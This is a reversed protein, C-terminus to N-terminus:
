RNVYALIWNAFKYDNKRQGVDNLISITNTNKLLDIKLGFIKFVYFEWEGYLIWTWLLLHLCISLVFVPSAAGRGNLHSSCVTIARSKHQTHTKKGGTSTRTHITWVHTYINICSQFSITNVFKIDFMTKTGPKSSQKKKGTTWQISTNTHICKDSHANDINTQKIGNQIKWANLWINNNYSDFFHAQTIKKMEQKQQQTLTNKKERFACFNTHGSTHGDFLSSLVFCGIVPRIQAPIYM